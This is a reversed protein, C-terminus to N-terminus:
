VVGRKFGIDDSSFSIKGQDDIFIAEAGDVSRIFEMGKESGLSLCITSLADCDVSRGKDAIVAVSVLDTDYQYGTKPDLVHHYLEGDKEFYREYTGSTVVTKDKCPVIGLLQGKDSDPDAIGVSFQSGAGNEMSKGKEGVAVINGGLSILASTVGESELYEAVKDAIYGKAIGGLDIQAQPDLLRVTNGEIVIQEYGVHSVAERLVEPDPVTGTKEGNEDVQHFDWLKSVGGITIDFRGESLQGYEIGKEIVEIATDSVAVPQGAANNIKYIDTGKRMNSLIGEYEDCLKFAETIVTLVQERQEEESMGELGDMSYVTIKCITDLHFSTKEIGANNSQSNCGTQPIILMAVILLLIFLRKM